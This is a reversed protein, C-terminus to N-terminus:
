KPGKLAKEIDSSMKPKEKSYATHAIVPHVQDFVARLGELNTPNGRKRQTLTLSIKNPIQYKAIAYSLPPQTPRSLSKLTLLSLGSMGAHMSLSRHM